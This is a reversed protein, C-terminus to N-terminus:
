IVTVGTYATQDGIIAAVASEISTLADILSTDGQGAKTMAVTIFDQLEIKQVDEDKYYRVNDVVGYVRYWIVVKYNPTQTDDEFIPQDIALHTMHVKNYSVAPYSAPNSVQIGM